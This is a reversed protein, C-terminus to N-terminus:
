SRQVKSFTVFNHGIGSEHNISIEYSYNSVNTLAGARVFYSM